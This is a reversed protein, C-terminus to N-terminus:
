VRVTITTQLTKTKQSCNKTRKSSQQCTELLSWSADWSKSRSMLKSHPTIHNSVLECPQQLRFSDFSYSRKNLKPASKTRRLFIKHPKALRHVCDSYVPPNCLASIRMSPQQLDLLEAAGHPDNRKALRAAIAAPQIAEPKRMGLPKRM